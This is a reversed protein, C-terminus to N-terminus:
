PMQSAQSLFDEKGMVPNGNSVKVEVKHRFSNLFHREPDLNQKANNRFSKHWLPRPITQLFSGPPQLGV